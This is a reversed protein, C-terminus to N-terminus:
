RASAHRQIKEPSLAKSYIAVEDMLGGFLPGRNGRGVAEPHFCGIWQASADPKGNIYIKLESYGSRVVAVHIWRGAAAQSEAVILDKKADFIRLKGDYFNVDQGSGNLGVLADPGGVEEDLKVWAMLTFDRNLYLNPIDIWSDRGNFRAAKGVRGPVLVINHAGEPMTEFSLEVEKKGLVEDPAKGEEYWGLEAIMACGEWVVLNGKWGCSTIYWKGDDPNQVIEPAHTALRTVVLDESGDYDGFDLPDKSRFVLTNQYNWPKCDTYTVFLYYWDGYKVVFPSETAGWSPNLPADGSTTLAHGVPEWKKLDASQWVNVTGYDGKKGTSYMLWKDGVKLTMTDRFAGRLFTKQPDLVVGQHEWAFMDSSTDLLMSGPGWFLHCVGNESVAHPAWAKRGYACIKEHEEYGGEAIISPASGHAFYREDNPSGNGHRTIGILHWSGDVHRYLTHDNIYSGTNEPKFLLKWDGKIYPVHKMGQKGAFVGCCFFVSVVAAVPMINMHRM